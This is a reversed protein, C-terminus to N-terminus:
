KPKNSELVSNTRKNWDADTDRERERTDFTHRRRDNRLFETDNRKLRILESSLERADEDKKNLFSTKAVIVKNTTTSTTTTTLSSEFKAARLRFSKRASLSDITNDQQQQQLEKDDEKNKYVKLRSLLVDKDEKFSESRYKDNLFKRREEKYKEIRERNLKQDFLLNETSHVHLKCKENPLKKPDNLKKPSALTTLSTGTDDLSKRRLNSTEFEKKFEDEDLSRTAKITQKLNRARLCPPLNKNSINDVSRQKQHQQQTKVEYASTLSKVNTKKAESSGLFFIIM